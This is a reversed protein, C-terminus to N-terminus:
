PAIHENICAKVAAVNFNHLDTVLSLDEEVDSVIGVCIVRLPEIKAQKTALVVM